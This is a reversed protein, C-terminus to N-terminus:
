TEFHNLASIMPCNVQGDAQGCLGILQSLAKEIRKLDDLKSRVEQLKLTAQAQAEHCQVGDELNLLQAVEELSFGLKQASKIFRIRELETNGYRRISGYPKVPTGVLGKRQYFRITEINVSAAEALASITLQNM